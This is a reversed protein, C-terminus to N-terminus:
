GDAPWLRINQASRRGSLRIVWAIAVAGLIGGVAAVVDWGEFAKGSIATGARTVLVLAMPLSVSAALWALGDRAWERSRRLYGMWLGTFVAHTTLHFVTMTVPLLAMLNARTFVALTFIALGAILVSAPWFSLVTLIGLAATAGAIDALFDRPDMTRDAVYEQLWEDCVGYLAVVILLCWVAAKGWRVKACPRIASWLLFTLIMYALLHLSKDSLHARRVIRPIPIHALVFLTPWYLVLAVIVAKQRRIFTMSEIGWDIRGIWFLSLARLM